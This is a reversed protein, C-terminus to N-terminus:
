DCGGILPIIALVCQPFLCCADMGFVARAGSINFGHLSCLSPRVFFCVFSFFFCVFVFLCVFLGELVM